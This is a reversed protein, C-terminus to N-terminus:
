TGNNRNKNNRIILLVLGVTFIVVCYIWFWFRIKEASITMVFVAFSLLLVNITGHVIVGSLMRNASEAIIWSLIYSLGICSIFFAFYNMYEQQSTGSIFWLPLHWLAWIVGMVFSGISLGFRKELIPLIFGRWGIEEQGGGLFIMQLLFLPFVYINPLYPPVENIGFVKPLIYAMIISIGLIGFITLWVKWGFNLSFFLKFFKKISGKGNTTLLTIFAAIAPGFAGISMIPHGHGIFIFPVWFLWTWFFTIIFFRVPIMNEM